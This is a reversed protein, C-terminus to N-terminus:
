CSANTPNALLSLEIGICQTQMFVLLYYWMCDGFSKSLSSPRSTRMGMQQCAQWEPKSVLIPGELFLPEWTSAFANLLRNMGVPSWVMVSSPYGLSAPVTALHLPVLPSCWGMVMGKELDHIQSHCINQFNWAHGGCSISCAAQLGCSFWGALRWPCLCLPCWWMGFNASPSLPSSGLQTSPSCGEWRCWRSGAPSGQLTPLFNPSLHWKPCCVWWLEYHIFVIAIDLGQIGQILLEEM